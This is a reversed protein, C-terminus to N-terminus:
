RSKVTQMNNSDSQKKVLTPARAAINAFSKQQTTKVQAQKPVGITKNGNSSL